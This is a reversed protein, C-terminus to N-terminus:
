KMYKICKTKGNKVIEIIDKGEKLSDSYRDEADFFDQSTYGNGVWIGTCDDVFSLIDSDKSAEISSVSDFIIFKFDKKDKADLVLKDISLDTDALHKKLKGYGLVMIIIKKNNDKVEYDIINKNLIPILKKFNSDYIKVKDISSFDATKYADLVILNTDKLKSLLKVLAVIFLSSVKFSTSIILSVLKDFEFYGVQATNVNIGLPVQSLDTLYGEMDSEFIEEPVTPVSPARSKLFKNLQALTYELRETNEKEEFVLSVQFEYPEDLLILGRGPNKGPIPQNDFHM